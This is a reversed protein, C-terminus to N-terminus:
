YPRKRIGLWYMVPSAILTGLTFLVVILIVGFPDLEFYRYCVLLPFLAEPVQDLGMAQGSSEIGLRRKLCSSFLDGAMAAAGFLLGIQWPYGFAVAVAATLFVGSALGRLTKSPGFLPRGDWLRTGGDVPWAWRDGLLRTALVPSGNAVTILLLLEVILSFSSTM